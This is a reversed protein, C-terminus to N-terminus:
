SGRKTGSQVQIPIIIKGNKRGGLYIIQCAIDEMVTQKNLKLM